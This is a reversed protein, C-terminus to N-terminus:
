HLWDQIEEVLWLSEPESLQQGLKYIGMGTQVTVGQSPIDKINKINATQGRQRRYCYGLLRWEMVFNDKDLYISHHSFAAFLEEHLDALMKVLVKGVGIWGWGLLVILGTGVMFGGFTMWLIVAFLGLSMWFMFLSYFGWFPLLCITQTLRVFVKIVSRLSLGRQPLKIKLQDPSKSLQVRTRPPQSLKQSPIDLARNTQLAELALRATTFRREIDPEACAEIWRVLSPNISIRDSFQIRLNRLPLDAPATGTLLHIMTAGLAYLDSAPVARGWFQELPTYGSTGVITFTAGEVAARNQVAGFDVLYIQGNEGIILNSPKIDRHLVPPSLEHLYILIELIGTAFDRVQAETFRKGEDLMQRLSSGPIYDQVLGFWYLGAGCNKDISFSDRYRPIRPHNLNKLVEAEREFLKFEDWLMQPSFALLKVIAEQQPSASIDTALWTQRGANHGLKQKLQYRQNLLQEAQLM